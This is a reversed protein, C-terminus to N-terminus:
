HKARGTMKSSKALAKKGSRVRGATPRGPRKESRSRPDAGEGIDVDMRRSLLRLVERLGQRVQVLRERADRDLLDALGEGEQASPRECEGLRRSAGALTLGEVFVLERIQIVREVDSRRYLRPGGKTKAVGLDPFESEWTRLVYPQLGVIQCVESGKFLSRKPIEIPPM